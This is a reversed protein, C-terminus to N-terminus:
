GRSASHDAITRPLALPNSGDSTPMTSGDWRACRRDDAPTPVNRESEPCPIPEASAPAAGLSAIEFWPIRREQGSDLRLTVHDGSVM